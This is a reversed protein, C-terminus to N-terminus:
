EVYIQGTNRVVITKINGSASSVVIKVYSYVKGGNDTKIIADPNPRRFLIDVKDKEKCVGDNESVCISKIYNGRKISYKEICESGSTCTKYNSDYLSNKNLDAFLIFDKNSFDTSGGSKIKFSVGYPVFDKSEIETEKINIGYTQAERVSLAIDSALNSLFITNNFSEQNFLVIGTMISFITLTVLLEVLTFAKNYSKKFRKKLFNSM